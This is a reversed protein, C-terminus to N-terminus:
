FHQIDIQIYICIYLSIFLIVGLFRIIRSQPIKVLFASMSESLSKNIFITM